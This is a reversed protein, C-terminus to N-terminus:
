KKDLPYYKIDLPYYKIDLPYLKIDLPHKLEIIESKKHIDM